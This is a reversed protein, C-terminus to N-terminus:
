SNRRPSALEHREHQQCVYLRRESKKKKIRWFVEDHAGIVSRMTAVSGRGTDRQIALYTNPRSLQSRLIYRTNDVPYIQWRREDAPNGTTKFFVDATTNPSQIQEGVMSRRDFIPLNMQYWRNADFLTMTQFRYIHISRQLSWAYPRM